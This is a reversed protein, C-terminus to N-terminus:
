GGPRHRRAFSFYIDRYKFVGSHVQEFLLIVIKLAKRGYIHPSFSFYGSIETIMLLAM